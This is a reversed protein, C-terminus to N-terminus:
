INNGSLDTLACYFCGNYLGNFEEDHRVFSSDKKWLKDGKRESEKSNKSRFRTLM